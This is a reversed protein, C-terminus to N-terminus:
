LLSLSTDCGQIWVEHVTSIKHLGLNGIYWSEIDLIYMKEEKLNESVDDLTVVSSYYNSDLVLFYHPSNKVRRDFYDRFITKERLKHDEIGRLDFLCIAGLYNGMSNHSHVSGYGFKGEINIELQGCKEISTWKNAYTFHFIQNVLSPLFSHFFAEKSLKHQIKKFM